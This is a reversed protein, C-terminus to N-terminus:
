LLGLCSVTYLGKQENIFNKPRSAKLEDREKENESM